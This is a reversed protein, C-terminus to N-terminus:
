PFDEPPIAPMPNRLRDAVARSGALLGQDGADLAPRPRGAERWSSHNSLHNLHRSDLSHIPPLFTSGFTAFFLAASLQLLEFCDRFIHLAPSTGSSLSPQKSAVRCSWLAELVLNDKSACCAVAHDRQVLVPVLHGDAVSQKGRSVALRSPRSCGRVAPAPGAIAALRAPLVGCDSDAQAIKTVSM